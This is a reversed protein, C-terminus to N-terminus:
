ICHYLQFFITGNHFQKRHPSQADCGFTGDQEMVDSLPGVDRGDMDGFVQCSVGFCDLHIFLEVPSLLFVM